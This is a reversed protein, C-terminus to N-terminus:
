NLRILYPNFCGDFYQFKFKIGRWEFVTPLYKGDTNKDTDGEFYKYKPCFSGDMKFHKVFSKLFRGEYIRNDANM